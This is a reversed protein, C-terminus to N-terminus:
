ESKDTAAEAKKMEAAEAMAARHAKLNRDVRAARGELERLYYLKSRRVRGAQVVEVKAIKPSRRVFSREVGVGNSIKRVTFSRGNGDNKERIVVGEYVQIRQKDGEVIRVHVKVTDGPRFKPLRIGKTEQDLEAVIQSLGKNAAASHSPKGKLRSKLQKQAM